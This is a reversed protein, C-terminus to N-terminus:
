CRKSNPSLVAVLRAPPGTSGWAGFSRRTSFGELKGGNRQSKAGFYGAVAGDEAGVAELGHGAGRGAGGAKIDIGRELVTRANGEGGRLRMVEAVDQPQFGAIARQNEVAAVAFPSTHERPRTCAPERQGEGLAGTRLF